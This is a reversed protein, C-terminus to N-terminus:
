LGVKPQQDTDMADGARKAAKVAAVSEGDVKAGPPPRAAAGVPRVAGEELADLNLSSLAAASPPPVIPGVLPAAASPDSLACARALRALTAAGSATAAM